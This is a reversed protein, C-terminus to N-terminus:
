PIDRISSSKIIRAESPPTPTASAAAGKPHKTTHRLIAYKPSAVACKANSPIASDNVNSNEIKAPAMNTPSINDDRTVIYSPRVSKKSVSKPTAPCVEIASPSTMIEKM